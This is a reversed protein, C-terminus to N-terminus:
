VFSISSAALSYQNRTTEDYGPRYILQPRYVVPHWWCRGRKEENRNKKERIFYEQRKRCLLFCLWLYSDSTDDKAALVCLRHHHHSTWWTWVFRTLRDFDDWMEELEADIRVNTEFRIKNTLLENSLDKLSRDFMQSDLEIPGVM